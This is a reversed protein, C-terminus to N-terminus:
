VVSCEVVVVIARLEDSEQASAVLQHTVREKKIINGQKTAHDYASNHQQKGRFRYVFIDFTAGILSIDFRNDTTAIAHVWVVINPKNKMMNAFFWGLTYKLNIYPANRMTEITAFTIKASKGLLATSFEIAVFFSLLFWMPNTSCILVNKSVVITQNISNEM